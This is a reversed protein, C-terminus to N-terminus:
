VVVVRTLRHAQCMVCMARELKFSHHMNLASVELTVHCVMLAGITGSNQAKCKM